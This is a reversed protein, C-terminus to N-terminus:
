LGFKDNMRKDYKNRYRGQQNNYRMRHKPLELGEVGPREAQKEPPLQWEPDPNQMEPNFEDEWTVRTFGNERYKKGLFGKYNDLCNGGETKAFQLIDDSIGRLKSNNVLNVIEVKGPEIYHLGFCVNHGKLTYVIWGPSTIEEKSHKSLYGRYAQPTMNVIEIYRDYNNIEWNRKHRVFSNVKRDFDKALHRDGESLTDNSLTFRTMPDIVFTIEGESEDEDHAEFLMEGNPVIRRM